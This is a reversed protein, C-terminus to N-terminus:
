EANRGLRNMAVQGVVNNKLADPDVTDCAPPEEAGPISQGAQEFGTEVDPGDNCVRKGELVESLSKLQDSGASAAFHHEKRSPTGASTVSERM